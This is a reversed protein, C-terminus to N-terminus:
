VLRKNTDSLAETSKKITNIKEGLLNVKDAYGVLQPARM